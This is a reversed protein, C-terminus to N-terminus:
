KNNNILILIINLICLNNIIKHLIIYKKISEKIMKLLKKFKSQEMKNQKKHKLRHQKKEM